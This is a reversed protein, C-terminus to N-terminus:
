KMQSENVKVLVLNKDVVYANGNGISVCSYFYVETGPFKMWSKAGDKTLLLEGNMGIGWDTNYDVASVQNLSTTARTWTAGGNNTHAPQNGTLTWAVTASAASIYDANGGNIKTWTKGQDATKYITHQADVAWANVDDVASVRSQNHGVTAWNSGGDTSVETENTFTVGWVAGNGAVSVQALKNNLAIWNHGGDTSKLLDGPLSIKYILLDNAASFPVGSSATAM